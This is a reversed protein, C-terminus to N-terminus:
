FISSSITCINCIPIAHTTLTGSIRGVISSTTLIISSTRNVSESFRGDDSSLLDLSERTCVGHNTSQFKFNYTQSSLLIFKNSQRSKALDENSQHTCSKHLQPVPSSSKFQKIKAYKLIFNVSEMIHIMKM